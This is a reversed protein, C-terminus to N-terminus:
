VSTRFSNQLYIILDYKNKKLTFLLNINIFLNKDRNDEILNNFYNSDKFFSFYKKETLLEVEENNFHKKISYIVPLSFM